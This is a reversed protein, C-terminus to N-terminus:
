LINEWNPRHTESLERLTKALDSLAELVPSMDGEESLEQARSLARQIEHIRADNVFVSILPKHRSFDSIFEELMRLGEQQSDESSLADCVTEAKEALEGTTKALRSQGFFVFSVLLVAASIAAIFRGM